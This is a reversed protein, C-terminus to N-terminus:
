ANVGTLKLIREVAGDWGEFADPAVVYDEPRAFAREIAAALRAPDAPDFYFRDALGLDRNAEIDSLILPIGHQIAELVANSMGEHVSCNVFLAKTRLAELVRDRAQRGVFSVKAQPRSAMLERLRQSEDSLDAGGIVTVNPGSPGLLHAAEILLRYNKQATVRGVALLTGRERATIGARPACPDLGNRVVRAQVGLSSLHRAISPAVAIVTDAQRCLRESLRMALRMAANWKQLSHDVSGSRLHIKTRRWFVARLLPILIAFNTGLIFIHDLRQVAHLALAYIVYLAKDTRLWRLQPVTVVRLGRPLPAQPRALLLVSVDAVRLARAIFEDAFKEVGGEQGFLGRPGV